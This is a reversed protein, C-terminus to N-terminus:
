RRRANGTLSGEREGTMSNAHRQRSLSAPPWRTSPVGAPATRPSSITPTLSLSRTALPPSSRSLCRATSTFAASSRTCARAEGTLRQAYRVTNVVGAHGCATLVVLGKGAINAILAQDDLILPDPQWQGDHCAQHIAMGREFGSTRDVEGTVLLSGALLFSPQQQEIIEFGAGELAGRSITPLMLPERGPLALRRRSWFEPHILVPVNAKGLTRILGDMGTTHDFHGHSLVIAEVDHPSLELRRMNEILGDPSIGTDFLVRHERGGQSITVLAAFGHEARLTDLTQGGEIVPSPVRPARSDIPARIAPGEDLLLIDTVNDVLTTITVSEVPELGITEFETM